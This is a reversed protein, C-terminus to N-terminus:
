THSSLSMTQVQYRLNFARWVVIYVISSIYEITTSYTHTAVGM